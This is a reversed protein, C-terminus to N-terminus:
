FLVVATVTDSYTGVSVDQGPTIRGYITVTVDDKKPPNPDVYAGTGATFDGWVSTRAADRYLNYTLKESGQRLERPQFTQSQGRTMTIALTAVNGTCRYVVTGTTDVPAAQFVNYSGFVIPTSSITCQDAAAGRAAALVCVAALFVTRSLTRCDHM